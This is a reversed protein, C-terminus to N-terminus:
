IEWNMLANYAVVPIKGTYSKMICKILNTRYAKYVASAEEPTDFLGLKKSKGMYSSEAVFKGCDHRWVGAPWEGKNSRNYCLLCNVPHPVIVCSYPSYEDIDGALINHDLDM